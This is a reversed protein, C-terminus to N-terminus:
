KSTKVEKAPRVIVKVNAGLFTSNIFAVVDVHSVYIDDDDDDSESSTSADDESSSMKEFLTLSANFTKQM